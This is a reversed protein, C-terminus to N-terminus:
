VVSKRDVGDKTLQTEKGTAVDRVWLNFDRVFATRKGDPSPIDNRPAGGAQGREGAAPPADGRGRGGRGEAAAACAPLGCPVKTGKAPDVLFAESGKETAIRYWFRGDDLFTPRVGARLVLPGTSAALFKEARAYDDSTVAPSQGALPVVSAVGAFLLAIFM